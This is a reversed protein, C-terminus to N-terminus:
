NIILKKHLSMAQLSDTKVWRISLSTQKKRNVDVLLYNDMKGNGMGSSIMRINNFTHFSFATKRPDAGVDGAFLFVPKQTAELLPVVEPWFNIDPARGDTSNFRIAAYANDPEWWLVQHFFIFINHYRKVNALTAKLFDMQEGWINWGGLGPNLVICLDGEQEFHYFTKGYREKYPSKHGEDHNGTAFHVKIGLQEIQQDVVDWYSDRSYYVIDGTFVGFRMDTHKRIFDFDAVFPPHMGPSKDLGSGYVHGAVFFRYAQPAKCGALLLATFLLCCSLLHNM